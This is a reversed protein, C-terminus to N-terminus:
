APERAYCFDIRLLSSTLLGLHYLPNRAAVDDTVSPHTAVIVGDRRDECKWGDRGLAQRLADPDRLLHIRLYM